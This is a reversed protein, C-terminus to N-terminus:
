HNYYNLPSIFLVWLASGEESFLLQEAPWSIRCVTNMVKSLPVHRLYGVEALHIYTLQEEFM